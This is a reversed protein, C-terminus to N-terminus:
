DNPDATEGYDRLLKAMKPRNEQIKDLAFERGTSKGIGKYFEATRKNWDSSIVDVPV